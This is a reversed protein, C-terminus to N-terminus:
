KCFLILSLYIFFLAIELNYYTRNKVNVGYLFIQVFCNECQVTVIRCTFTWIKDRRTCKIVTRVLSLTTSGVRTKLPQLSGDKCPLVVQVFLNSTHCCSHLKMKNCHTTPLLTILLELTWIETFDFNLRSSFRSAFSVTSWCEWSLIIPRIDHHIGSLWHQEDNRACINNSVLQNGTKLWQM